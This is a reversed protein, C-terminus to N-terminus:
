KKRKKPDLVPELIVVVKTDVDPIRESIAEFFRESWDKPSSIPLDLM